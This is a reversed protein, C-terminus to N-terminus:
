RCKKGGAPKIPQGCAKCVAAPPNKFQLTMSEEPPKMKKAKM